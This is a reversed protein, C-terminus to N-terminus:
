FKRLKKVKDPLESQCFFYKCVSNAEGKATMYAAKAIIKDFINKKEKM